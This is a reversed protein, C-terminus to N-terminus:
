QCHILGVAKDNLKDMRRKNRKEPTLNNTNIPYTTKENGIYQRILITKALQESLAVV